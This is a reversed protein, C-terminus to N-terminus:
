GERSELIAAAIKKCTTNHGGNEIFSEAIGADREKQLKMGELLALRAAEHARKVTGPPISEAIERALQEITQDTM